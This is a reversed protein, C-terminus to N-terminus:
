KRSDQANSRNHVIAAGRYVDFAVRLSDEVRDPTGLSMLRVRGQQDTVLVAPLETTGLLAAAENMTMRAQWSATPISESSRQSSLLAVNRTVEVGTTLLVTTIGARQMIQTWAREVRKPEQDSQVFLLIWIPQDSKSYDLRPEFRKALDSADIDYSEASLSAIARMQRTMELFRYVNDALGLGCLGIALLLIYRSVSGDNESQDAM